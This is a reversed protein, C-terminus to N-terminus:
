LTELQDQGFEACPDPSGGCKVDYVTDDISISVIQTTSFDTETQQKNKAVGCSVSCSSDGYFIGFCKNEEKNEECTGDPYCCAGLKPAQTFCCNIGGCTTGEGFFIGGLASCGAPTLIQCTKDSYVCCAGQIEVPLGEVCDYDCCNGEFPTGKYYEECIKFTVNPICTYGLCCSTVPKSIDYCQRMTNDDSSTYEVGDCQIGDYYVGGFYECENKSVGIVCHGNSCCIATPGCTLSCPTFLNFTGSRKICWDETVYEACTSTQGSTYCCSGVGDFGKCFTAGYGREVITAYWNSGKDNTMLNMINTGCGFNSSYPSDEFYVNSPFQSFGSGEVFLTVSILENDGYLSPDLTFGSLGMPTTIKYVGGNTIGLIVNNSDSVIDIINNQGHFYVQSSNTTIGEINSFSFAGSTKGYSIKTTDMLFQTRAFLVKGDVATSTLTVGYVVDLPTILISDGTVEGTLNGIFSIGKVTLTYGSSSSFFTLGGSVNDGFVTGTYGAPGRTGYITFLKNGALISIFDQNPSVVSVFNGTIGKPGTLGIGIGTPGIPGKPGTPGTPGTVGTVIPKIASTGM